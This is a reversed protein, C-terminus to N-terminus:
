HSITKMLFIFYRPINTCIRSTFIFKARSIRGCQKAKTWIKIQDIDYQRVNPPLWKSDIKNENYAVDNGKFFFLDGNQKNSFFFWLQHKWHCRADSRSVITHRSCRCHSSRYNQECKIATQFNVWPCLLLECSDKPWFEALLIVCWKRM